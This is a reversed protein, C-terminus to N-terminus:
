ETQLKVINCDVRDASMSSCGSVGGALLLTGLASAMGLKRFADVMSLEGGPDFEVGFGLMRVINNVPASKCAMPAVPAKGDFCRAQSTVLLVIHNSRLACRARKEVARNRFRSFIAADAPDPYECHIQGLCKIRLGSFLSPKLLPDVQAVELGIGRALAFDERDHNWRRIDGTLEMEAVREVNRQLVDDHARAPHLTVVRQPQGAGIVGSDRRLVRDLLVKRLIALVTM